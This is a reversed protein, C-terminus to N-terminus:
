STSLIIYLVDVGSLLGELWLVTISPHIAAGCDPQITQQADVPLCYIVLVVTVKFPILVFNKSLQIIYFRPTPLLFHTHLVTSCPNYKAVALGPAHGLNGNHEVM